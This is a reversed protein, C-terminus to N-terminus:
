SGFVTFVCNAGEEGAILLGSEMDRSIQKLARCSVTSQSLCIPIIPLQYKEMFSTNIKCTGRVKSVDWAILCNM